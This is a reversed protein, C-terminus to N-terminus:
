FWLQPWLLSTKQVSTVSKVSKIKRFFQTKAKKFQTKELIVSNKWGFSLKEYTKASNKLFLQTKQGFFRFQTKFIPFQTKRNQGFFFAQYQCQGDSMGSGDKPDPIQTRFRPDPIKGSGPFIGQILFKEGFWYEKGLIKFWTFKLPLFSPKLPFNRTRSFKRPDPFIGSGRNWVWIGSGITPDPIDSPCLWQKLKFLHM